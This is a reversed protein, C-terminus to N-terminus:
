TGAPGVDVPVYATEIADAIVDGLRQPALTSALLGADARTLDLLDDLLSIVRTTQREALGFIETRHAATLEEWHRRV